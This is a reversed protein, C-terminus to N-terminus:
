KAYKTFTFGFGLIKFALYHTDTIKEDFCLTIESVAQIKCVTHIYDGFDTIVKEFKIVPYSFTLEFIDKKTQYIKM